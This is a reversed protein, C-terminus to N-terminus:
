VLALTQRAYQLVQECLEDDAIYLGAGCATLHQMLWLSQYNPIIAETIVDNQTDNGKNTSSLNKSAHENNAYGNIKNGALDQIQKPHWPYLTVLKRDFFLVRATKTPATFSVNPKNGVSTFDRLQKLYLMTKAADKQSVCDCSAVDHMRDLRFRRKQMSQCDLAWLYTYDNEKFLYRPLVTHQKKRPSASRANADGSNTDGIDDAGDRSNIDGAGNAGDTSYHGPTYTFTLAQECGRGANNALMVEICSLLADPTASTKRSTITREVDEPAVEQHVFSKDVAQYLPHDRSVDLFQLAAVLATTESITLRLAKTGSTAAPNAPSVQITNEDDSLAIPLSNTEDAALLLLQNVLEAADDLELGFEEAVDKKSYPEKSKALVLWLLELARLNIQNKNGSSRSLKRTLTTTDDSDAASTSASTGSNVGGSSPLNKDLFAMSECHKKYAALAEDATTSASFITQELINKWADVLPKPKQPVFGEELAWQAADTFQNTNVPMHLLAQTATLDQVQSSVQTQLSAQEEAAPEDTSFYGRGVPIKSYDNQLRDLSPHPYFTAEVLNQGLQFPLFLYKKVSFSEPVEYTEELKKIFLVRDERYVRIQNYQLGLEKSYVCGVFYSKKNLSFLGLIALTKDSIKGQADIYSIQCCRRQIFYDRLESSIRKQKEIEKQQRKTQAKTGGPTDGRTDTRVDIISPIDTTNFFGSINALAFRLDRQYPFAEDKCLPECLADLKAANQASFYNTNAYTHQADLAYVDGGLPDSLTLVITGCAELAERDRDFQRHASNDNLDPYIADKIKKFSLNTRTNIFLLALAARRELVRSNKDEQLEEQM